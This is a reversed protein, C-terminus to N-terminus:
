QYDSLLTGLRSLIDDKDAKLQDREQTLQTVQTQLDQVQTQLSTIQNLEDQCAVVPQCELPDTAPVAPGVWDSPMYRGDESVCRVAINSVISPDEQYCSGAKRYASFPVM